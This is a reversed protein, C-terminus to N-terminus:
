SSFNSRCPGSGVAPAGFQPGGRSDRFHDAAVEADTVMRLVNALDDLKPEAPGALLWPLLGPLAILDGNVMSPM